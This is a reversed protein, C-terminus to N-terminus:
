QVILYQFAPITLTESLSVQAGTFLNTVQKNRLPPPLNFSVERNRVNVLIYITSNQYKKQISIIDQSSTSTFSGYKMVKSTDRFRLFNKYASYTTPNETWNIADKTFFPLLPTRGTEQSSYILPNGSMSTVAVFAAISANQSGFMQIPTKDWASEDHNTTFRLKRATAPIAGDEAIIASPLQTAPSGAMVNKITTFATWAYNMQFGATLQQQRDGEALLIYDRKANAKISDIAQKWFDDPVFNAADCRIGDIEVDELWYRMDSIMAQRMPQKSYDLDAVDLWNTTPPHTIAGSADKTYWEPHESIWKHDFSTHNAVWDIIVAIKRDHAEKILEKFDTLTGLEPNVSRYDSISYPSGLGFSRREVGIPNIPMLWIVNIGLNKISDLRREVGKFTGESSFARMNVEYMQIDANSPVKFGTPQPIVPDCNCATSDDKCSLFTFLCLVIVARKIAQYNM